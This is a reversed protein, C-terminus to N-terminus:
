NESDLAIDETSVVVSLQEANEGCRLNLSHSPDGDLHIVQNPGLSVRVREPNSDDHAPTWMIAQLACRGNDPLYYAIVRKTGVSALIPQHPAAPGLYEVPEEGRASNVAVFAAFSAFATVTLLQTSTKTFM